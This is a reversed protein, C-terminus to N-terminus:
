RKCTTTSRPLNWTFLSHTEGERWRRHTISASSFLMPQGCPDSENDCGHRLRRRRHPLESVLLIKGNGTRQLVWIAPSDQRWNDHFAADRITPWWQLLMLVCKWSPLRNFDLDSHTVQHVAMALSESVQHSSLKCKGCRLLVWDAAVDGEVCREFRGRGECQFGNSSWFDNAELEDTTQGSSWIRMPLVTIWLVMEIVTFTEGIPPFLWPCRVSIPLCRPSPRESPFILNPVVDLRREQEWATTQPYTRERSRISGHSDEDVVKCYKKM